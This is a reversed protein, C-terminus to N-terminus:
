GRKKNIYIYIYDNSGDGGEATEQLLARASVANRQIPQITQHTTIPINNNIPTPSCLLPFLPTLFNKSILCSIPLQNQAIPGKPFFLNPLRRDSRLRRDRLTVSSIVDHSLSGCDSLFSRSTRGADQSLNSNGTKPQTKPFHLDRGATWSNDRSM